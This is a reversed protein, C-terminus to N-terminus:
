PSPPITDSGERLVVRVEPDRGSVNYVLTPAAVLVGDDPIVWGQLPGRDGRVVRLAVPRGADGEVSVHLTEGDRELRAAGPPGSPRAPNCTCTPLWGLRM